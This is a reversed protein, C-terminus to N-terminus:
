QPVIEWGSPRWRLLASSLRNPARTMVNKVLARLADIAVPTDEGVYFVADTAPIAVILVGAQAQALAAWSDLLLLRSPHYSDGVLQGIQGQGAVKAIEMLPKLNKSLNSLGLDYVEQATLGLRANDKAGLMRIARSTDLVPLIVLGEVLPRPQVQPPAGGGISAQAAQVYQSTRIVLRVAERTPPATRDRHVQAAAKVYREVESQCGSANGRCFAFIRDLNAQLEGLGITLPGKVVVAADGVDKRLQAAVYDTFGREDRPIDQATAVVSFATTVLAIFSKTARM